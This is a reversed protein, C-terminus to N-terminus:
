TARALLVADGDHYHLAPHGVVARRDIEQFGLRRYLRMAGENREFCILSVRALSLDKARQNVAEMLAKGIGANRCQEVVTLGSLYLSGYDELESYPKLVPDSEPEGGADDEMAFSHAMGVTAGDREAILCNEYSFAVGQRAYHRTGADIVTEGPEAVKSWIYEALGESSIVFHSAIDPSDERVAQRIDVM